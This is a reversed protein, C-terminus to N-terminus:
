SPDAVYTIFCYYSVDCYYPVDCAIYICLFYVVSIYANTVSRICTARPVQRCVFVPVCECHYMCTDVCWYLYVSVFEIIWLFYMIHDMYYM